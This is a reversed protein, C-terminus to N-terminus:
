SARFALAIAAAESQGIWIPLFREGESERLLVIAPELCSSASGALNMEILM